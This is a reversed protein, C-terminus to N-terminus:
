KSNKKAERKLLAELRKGFQRIYIADLENRAEEAAPAVFPHAPLGDKGGTGHEIYRWWFPTVNNKSKGAYVIHVPKDPPSRRKRVKVGKKTAGTRHLPVTRKIKKQIQAAVARNTAAALNRAHKPTIESLIKETEKIGTITITM